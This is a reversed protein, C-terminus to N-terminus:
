NFDFIKTKPSLMKFEGEKWDSKEVMEMICEPIEQKSNFSLKLEPRHVFLNIKTNADYFVYNGLFVKEGPQVWITGFYETLEPSFNDYHYMYNGIERCFRASVVQYRGPLINPFCLNYRVILPSSEIREKTDINELIIFDRGSGKRDNVVTMFVVAGEGSNNAPLERLYICSQLSTVLLLMFSIASFKVFKKM